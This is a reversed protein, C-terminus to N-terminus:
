TDEFLLLVPLNRQDWMVTEWTELHALTEMTDFIIFLNNRIVVFIKKLTNDYVDYGYEQIHNPNM